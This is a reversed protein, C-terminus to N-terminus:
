NYYGRISLIGVTANLGSVYAKGLEFGANFARQSTEFIGGTFVDSNYAGASLIQNRNYNIELGVPISIAPDLNAELGVGGIGKVKSAGNGDDGSVSNLNVGIFSKVGFVPNFAYAVRVTPKWQTDITSTVYDASSSGLTNDLASQAADLPSVALTHPRRLILGGSFVLNESRIIEYVAGFAFSYSTSAGFNVISTDNLGITTNADIEVSAALRRLIAIQVNIDPSFAGLSLDQSGNPTGVTYTGYSMGLALQATSDSFPDEVAFSPLFIHHNLIHAYEQPACGADDARVPTAIWAFLCTLMFAHRLRSTRM